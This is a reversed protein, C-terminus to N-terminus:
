VLTSPAGARCHLPASAPLTEAWLCMPVLDGGSGPQEQKLGEKSGMESRGDLDAQGQQFTPRPTFPRSGLGLLPQLPARAGGQLGM